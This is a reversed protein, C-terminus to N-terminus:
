PAQFSRKLFCSVVKGLAMLCFGTMAVLVKFWDCGAGTHGMHPALIQLFTVYMFTGGALGQIVSSVLLTSPEDPGSATLGIGIAIGLPAMVSFIGLWAFAKVPKEITGQFLELGLCYTMVNKHIAVAAFVSMTDALDRQLGVALGDFITHFSLAILLLFARVGPSSLNGDGKPTGDDHSDPVLKVRDDASTKVGNEVEPKEATDEYKHSDASFITTENEETAGYHEPTSSQHVINSEHISKLQLSEEKRLAGSIDGYQKPMIHSQAIIEVVAVLFFGMAVLTYFFPFDMELGVVEKYSEFEVAGKILIHIMLAGLFVGGAFCNLLAIMRNRYRLGVTAVPCSLFHFYPFYGIVITMVFLAVAMLLKYFDLDM